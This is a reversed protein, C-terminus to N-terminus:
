VMTVIHEVIRDVPDEGSIVVVDVEDAGPLEFTRVQDAVLSEPMFHGDVTARSAVRKRLEEETVLLAVFRVHDGVERLVDRHVQKLASCAVVARNNADGRHAKDAADRVRVLWPARDTEKLPEGSAMKVRAQETHLDDADIFACRLKGAVGRGVATKGSGSPGMVVM